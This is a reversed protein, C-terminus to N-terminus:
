KMKGAKRLLIITNCSIQILLFALALELAYPYPVIHQTENLGLHYMLASYGTFGGHADTDPRFLTFGLIAIASLIIWANFEPQRKFARIGAFIHMLIAPILVVVFIPLYWGISMVLIALAITSIASFLIIVSYKSM